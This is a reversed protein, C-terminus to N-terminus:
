GRGPNDVRVSEHQLQLAIGLRVARHGREQARDFIAGDAVVPNQEIDAAIRRHPEVAAGHDVARANVRGRQGAAAVATLGAVLERRTMRESEFSRVM